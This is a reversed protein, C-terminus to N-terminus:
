KKTFNDYDNAEIEDLIQQYLLLSAFVPWRSAQNLETVGKEAEQFFMRARKIQNKMFSRWKDTVRGAFIDEDSLGAQALE